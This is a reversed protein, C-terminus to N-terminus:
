ARKKLDSARWGLKNVFGQPYASHFALAMREQLDASAQGSPWLIFRAVVGAVSSAVNMGSERIAEIEQLVALSEAGPPIRMVCAHHLEDHSVIQVTAPRSGKKVAEAQVSKFVEVGTKVMADYQEGSMARTEEGHPDVVPGDYTAGADLDITEVGALIRQHWANAMSLAFTPYSTGREKKWDLPHKLTPKPTVVAVEPQQNEM